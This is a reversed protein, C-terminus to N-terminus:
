EPPNMVYWDHNVSVDDPGGKISGIVDGLREALTPIDAEDIAVEEAKNIVVEVRVLTGDELNAPEDLIIVGNKFHGLYTM